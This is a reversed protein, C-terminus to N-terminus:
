EHEDVQVGMRVARVAGVRDVDQDCVRLPVAQVHDRQGIM